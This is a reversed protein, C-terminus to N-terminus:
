SSVDDGVRWDPGQVAGTQGEPRDTEPYAAFFSATKCVKELIANEARNVGFPANEM